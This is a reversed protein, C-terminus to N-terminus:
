AQNYAEMWEKEQQERYYRAQTEFMNRYIGNELGMLEEHSGDEVIRGNQLVVIRDCLRTASLRHSIMVSTKGRSIEGFCRFIEEEALPDLAATPEDLLLVPADRYLARAIALRQGNGGSLETGDPEFLKYVYSREGKPLREVTGKLGVREFLPALEADEGRGLVVNDYFTYAFLRFDQFVAASREEMNGVEKGDFLIQGSDPRYLGCLLKVLTTKGAGNRGVIALREGKQITLSLSKLVPVDTGPYSFSVDRVEVEPAGVFSEEEAGERMSLAEFEQFASFFKGTYFLDSMKDSIRFLATGLNLFIGTYFAYEAIGLKGQMAWVALLGYVVFLQLQSLLSSLGARWGIRGFQTDLAKLDTRNLHRIKDMLIRGMDYVRVDKGISFDATMGNYAGIKREVPLIVQYTEDKTKRTQNVFYLNIGAMVVLALLLVPYGAAAIAATGILLFLGNLINPITERLTVDLVGYDIIPRLARDKLDMVWSDELLSYDMSMVRQGVYCKFDDRFRESFIGQKVTLYRNIGTCFFNAAVLCVVLTFLSRRSEGALLGALIQQTLWVNLIPSVASVVAIGATVALYAPSVKLTLKIVYFPLAFNGGIERFGKEHKEM